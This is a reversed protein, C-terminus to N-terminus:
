YSKPFLDLLYASAHHSQAKLAKNGNKLILRYSKDVIQQAEDKDTIQKITGYLVKLSSQIMNMEASLSLEYSSLSTQTANVTSSATSLAAQSNIANDVNNISLNDISLSQSSCNPISFSFTDANIGSTGVQLSAGNALTGDLINLRNFQSQSSIINIEANLSQFTNNMIVRDSETFSGNQSQESLQTMRTLITQIQSLGGSATQLLSLGQNANSLSQNISRIQSTIKSSLNIQGSDLLNHHNNSKLHFNKHFEESTFGYRNYTKDFDNNYIPGIKNAHVIMPKDTKELM